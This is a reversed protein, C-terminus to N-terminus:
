SIGKIPVTFLENLTYPYYYEKTGTEYKGTRISLVQDTMITGGGLSRKNNILLFGKKDGMSKGIYGTVDCTEGWSRITNVDGYDFQWRENAM